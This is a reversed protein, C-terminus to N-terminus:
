KFFAIVIIILSVIELQNISIRVRLLACSHKMNGEWNRDTLFGLYSLASASFALSTPLCNLALILCLLRKRWFLLPWVYDPTHDWLARKLGYVCRNSFKRTFIGKWLFKHSSVQFWHFAVDWNVTCVDGAAYIDQISSEM